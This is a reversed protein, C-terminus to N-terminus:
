EKGKEMLHGLVISAGDLDGLNHMNVAMGYRVQDLFYPKLELEELANEFSLVTNMLELYKEMSVEYEQLHFYCIGMLYKGLLVYTQHEALNALAIMGASQEIATHYSKQQIETMIATYLQDLQINM